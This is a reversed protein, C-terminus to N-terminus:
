VDGGQQDLKPAPSQASALTERAQAVLHDIHVDIRMFSATAKAVLLGDGSQKVECDVFVVNDTVRTVRAEALLDHGAQASRMYDVRLDLTPCLEYGPLANFVAGGCCTDMLTTLCGGHVVGTDPNGVIADSYPLRLSAFDPEAAEVTIGLKRCHPLVGVFQQSAWFREEPTKQSNKNNGM